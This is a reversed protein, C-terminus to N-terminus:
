CVAEGLEPVGDGIWPLEEFDMDFEPVYVIRDIWYINGNSM